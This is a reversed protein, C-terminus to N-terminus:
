EGEIRYAEWELKEARTQPGITRGPRGVWYRFNLRETEGLAADRALLGYQWLEALRRSADARKLRLQETVIRSTVFGQSLALAFLMRDSETFSGAILLKTAGTADPIVMLPRQRKALIRHLYRLTGPDPDLLFVPVQGLRRKRAEDMHGALTLALQEIVDPLPFAGEFGILAPTNDPLASLQEALRPGVAALAEPGHLFKTGTSPGLSSPSLSIRRAKENGDHFTV